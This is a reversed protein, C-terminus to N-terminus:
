LNISKIASVMSVVDKRNRWNDKCDITLAYLMDKSLGNPSNGTFDIVRKKIYNIIANTLFHGRIIYWNDKKITSKLRKVSRIENIEFSSNIEKIKKIVKNKDIYISKNNILLYNCANTLVSIGKNYRENAIDYIILEDADNCLSNGWEEIEEILNIKKKSLSSIIKNIIHFSYMTNEISHGYTTLIKRHSIKENKFLFDYYDLDTAVIYDANEQVIRRIYKKLEPKGGVDEIHAELNALEFLSGWFLVDDDGEVYVSFKKNYFLSKNSLADHSYELSDM